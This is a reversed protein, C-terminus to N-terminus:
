RCWGSRWYRQYYYQIRSTSYLNSYYRYTYQIPHRLPLDHIFSAVYLGTSAHVTEDVNESFEGKHIGRLLVATVLALSCLLLLFRRRAPTLVSEVGRRPSATPDPVLPTASTLNM